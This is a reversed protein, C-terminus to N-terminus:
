GLTSEGVDTSQLHHTATRAAAGLFRSRRFLLLATTIGALAFFLGFAAITNVKLDVPHHGRHQHGVKFGHVFALEFRFDQGEEGRAKGWGGRWRLDRGSGIADGCSTYGRGDGHRSFPLEVRELHSGGKLPRTLLFVHVWWPEAVGRHFLVMGEPIFCTKSDRCSAVM